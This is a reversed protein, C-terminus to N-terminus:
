QTVTIANYVANGIQNGLAKATTNERMSFNGGQVTEVSRDSLFSSLPNGGQQENFRRTLESELENMIASRHLNPFGDLVIEDIYLEISHSMAM